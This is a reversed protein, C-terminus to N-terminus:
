GIEALRDNFGKENDFQELFELGTDVRTGMEAFGSHIVTNDSNRAIFWTDETVTIHHAM